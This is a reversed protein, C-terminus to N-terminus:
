MKYQAEWFKQHFFIFVYFLNTMPMPFFDAPLVQATFIGKALKLIFDLLYFAMPM